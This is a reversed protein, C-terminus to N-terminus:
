EIWFRNLLSESLKHTNAHSLVGLYSQLSQEFKQSTIHRSRYEAEHKELKKFIRRRTKTRLLRYESFVIYGLFDAGQCISRITSKNEHLRLSLENGLFSSIGPLLKELYERDESVVAVDDTYRLYHKVGLTHKMFRDLENLYVNAFLQSTLNGIPIGKGDGYSDIITKVLWLADECSIRKKIVSFLIEHNVSDFFKRVDCKLVYCPRTDNRSVRRIMKQLAEVGRHTGYGVRCSFSTSIFTEEFIPSLVSFVAHHVIRDRVAAKHIHRQKPDRVYFGAYPSHRYTKAKLEHHLKFINEELDLEFVQVDHKHLKGRRFEDWASFLNEASIIREFLNSYIKM